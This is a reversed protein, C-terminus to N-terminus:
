SPLKRVHSIGHDDCHHREMFEEHQVIKKAQRLKRKKKMLKLTRRTRALRMLYSGYERLWRKLFWLLLIVLVVALLLEWWSMFEIFLKIFHNSWGVQDVRIFESDIEPSLTADGLGAAKNLEGSAAAEDGQGLLKKIVKVLGRFFGSM